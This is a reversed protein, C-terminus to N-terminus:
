FNISITHLTADVSYSIKFRYYDCIQKIIAMGLGISDASQESKRFRSFMENPDGKFEQGINSIILNKESLIISIKGEAINHRIANQLLNSVLVDALMPNMSLLFGPDIKKEVSIKKMSIMDGSHQLTRELLSGLNVEKVEAFQNSEIKSLLLLARNILSLKNASNYISQIIEMDSASITKSQILLEIKNKIVALPTQM